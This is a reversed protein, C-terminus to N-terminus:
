QCTETAEAVMMLTDYFFVFLIYIIERFAYNFGGSTKNIPMTIIYSLISYFIKLYKMVMYQHKQM